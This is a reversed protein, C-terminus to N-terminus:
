EMWIETLEVHKFGKDPCDRNTDNPYNTHQFWCYTWYHFQFLRKGSALLHLNNYVNTQNVKSHENCVSKKCSCPKNRCEAKKSPSSNESMSTSIQERAEPLFRKMTVKTEKTIAFSQRRRIQSIILKEPMSMNFLRRKEPKQFNWKLNTWIFYYCCCWGRGAYEYFFAFPWHNTRRKCM